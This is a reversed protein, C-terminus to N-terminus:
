APESSAIAPQVAKAVKGKVVYSHRPSFRTDGYEAAEGFTVRYRKEDEFSPAKTKTM